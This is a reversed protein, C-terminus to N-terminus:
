TRRVVSPMLPSRKPRELVVISRPRPDSPIVTYCEFYMQMASLFRDLTYWPLREPSWLSVHQDDPPVFEVIALKGTLNQIGRGMAEFSVHQKFALHHTVAMVLATDCRLREEASPISNFLGSSGIPWLFDYYLPLIDLKASNAKLFLLNLCTEEIDCAVVKKGLATGIEAHLGNNTGIDILTKGPDKELIRSVVRDKERLANLNGLDVFGPQGYNSWEGDVRPLNLGYIYEALAEFTSTTPSPDAQEAIRNPIDPLERTGPLDVIENGVGVRHERLMARAIRHEGISFLYLPALVKQRFQTYWFKWNLEEVPRISGWDIFVPFTGDFLVNWPHADKLCLNSRMLGASLGLMCLAASRLGEGSWEGRLTVFPVRQHEIVLPYGPFTFDTRFTRVLGRDYWDSHQALTLTRDVFEAYPATIARFIRGDLHFVKGVPDVVSSAEFIVGDPDLESM